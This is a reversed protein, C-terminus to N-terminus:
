RIVYQVSQDSTASVVIDLREDVEGTLDLGNAGASVEAEGAM